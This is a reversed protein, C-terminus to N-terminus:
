LAVAKLFFMPYERQNGDAGTKEVTHMTKFVSVQLGAKECWEKLEDPDFGSHPIDDTRHFTGDEKELDGICVVGGPNLLHSFEKLLGPADTMHHLAMLTYILNFQKEPWATQFIDGCYLDMNNIQYERIKSELVEIMGPSSDVMMVRDLSSHIAVSVLGTGCGFEMANMGPSLEVHHQIEKIFARAMEVVAPREDWTKAEENFRNESSM